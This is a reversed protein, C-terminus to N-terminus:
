KKIKEIKNIKLKRNKKIYRKKIDDMTFDPIKHDQNFFTDKCFECLHDQLIEGTTVPCDDDGYKCYHMICCHTRHVNINTVRM